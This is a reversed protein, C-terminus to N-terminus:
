DVIVEDGGPQSLDAEVLVVPQEHSGAVVQSRDGPSLYSWMGRSSALIVGSSRVAMPIWFGLWLFRNLISIERSLM